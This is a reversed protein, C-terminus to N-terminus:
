WCINRDSEAQEEKILFDYRAIIQLHLLVHRLYSINRKVSSWFPVFVVFDHGVCISLFLNEEKLVILTCSM